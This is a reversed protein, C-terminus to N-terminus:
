WLFQPFYPCHVIFVLFYLAFTVARADRLPRGRGAAFLAAMRDYGTATPHVGDVGILSLDGFTAALDVLLISVARSL